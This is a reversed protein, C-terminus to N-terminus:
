GHDAGKPKHIRITMGSETTVVMANGPQIDGLRFAEYFSDLALSKEDKRNLWRWGKRLAIGFIWQGAKYAMFFWILVVQFFVIWDIITYKAFAGM